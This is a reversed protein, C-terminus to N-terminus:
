LLVTCVCDMLVQVKNEQVFRVSISIQWVEGGEKGEEIYIYNM